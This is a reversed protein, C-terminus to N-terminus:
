RSKSPFVQHIMGPNSPNGATRRERKRRYLAQDAQALLSIPSDVARTCSAIGVSIGVCLTDGSSLAIPACVAETIRRVLMKASKGSSVVAGFEDGGLRSLVDEARFQGRLRGAVECLVEDGAAHGFRDNIAKFGDLDMLLLFFTSDTQVARALARDFEARNSLGTLHDTLALQALQISRRRSELATMALTALDHLVDRHMEGFMRPKNDVVAITGLAYGQADNLPAGAYFRLHPPGTVLPNDMFCPDRTLDEVVLLQDPLMLAHACFAIRRDLQPVELGLKSKFWLRDSDMLGVVAVPTDFSHAAVRTLADFDVEPPTDLINYSRVAELRQTENEPFPCSDHPM